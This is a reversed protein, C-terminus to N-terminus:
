VRFDLVIVHVGVQGMEQEEGHAADGADVIAVLQHDLADLLLAIGGQAAGYSLKEINNKPKEVKNSGSMCMNIYTLSM